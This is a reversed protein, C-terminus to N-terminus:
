VMECFYTMLLTLVLPWLTIFGQTWEIWVVWSHCRYAQPSYMYLRACLWTKYSKPWILRKQQRGSRWDLIKVNVLSFDKVYHGHNSCFLIANLKDFLFLVVQWAFVRVCFPYATRQRIKISVNVQNGYLPTRRTRRSHLSVFEDFNDDNVDGSHRTKVM